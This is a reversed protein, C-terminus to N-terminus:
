VNTKYRAMWYPLSHMPLIPCLLFFIWFKAMHTLVMTAMEMNRSDNVVHTQKIMGLCKWSNKTKM